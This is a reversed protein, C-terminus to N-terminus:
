TMWRELLLRAQERRTERMWEEATEWTTWTQWHFHKGGPDTKRAALIVGEHIARALSEITLPEGMM